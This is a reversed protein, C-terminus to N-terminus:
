GPTSATMPSPANTVIDILQVINYASFVGVIDHTDIIRVLYTPM